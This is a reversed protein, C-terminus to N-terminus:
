YRKLPIRIGLSVVQESTVFTLPTVPESGGSGALPTSGGRALGYDYYRWSAEVIIPWKGPGSVQMSAGLGVSWALNTNTYGEFSRTVPSSSSNERTWSGVKNRAVGIGGVVFPQFVSNSGGQELPSYFLNAMLTTTSVSASTIDAHTSCPTADSASQCPGSVNTSGSASLSVDGRFGNQWDFGIALSGFNSNASDLNFNVQPDGPFGPPQWYGDDVSKVAHGLEFRLYPGYTVSATPLSAFGSGQALAAPSALLLVLLSAASASASRSLKVM